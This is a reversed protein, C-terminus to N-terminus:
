DIKKIEYKNTHHLKFVFFFRLFRVSKLPFKRKELCRLLEQGVAGTVGAIAVSVKRGAM